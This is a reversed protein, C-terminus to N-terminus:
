KEIWRLVQFAEAYHLNASVGRFRALAEIGEKSRPHPSKKFEADYFHMFEIKQDIYKTIDVFYQPLFSRLGDAFSWNTSSNVEYALIRRVFPTYSPKTCAMVTKYVISHDTNVDTGGVTYIINPQVNQVIKGFSSILDKQPITDLEAALFKLNYYEKFGYAQHVKEIIELRQKKQGESYETLAYTFFCCYVDDGNAIHKLITGACGLTEDDPHPVVIMVKHNVM